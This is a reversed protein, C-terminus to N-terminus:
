SKRGMRRKERGGKATVCLTSSVRVSNIHMSFNHLSRDRRIPPNTVARVTVCRAPGASPLGPRAERSWDVPEAPDNRCIYGHVCSQGGGGGKM